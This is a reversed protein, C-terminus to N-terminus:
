PLEPLGTNSLAQFNIASWWARLAFSSVRRRITSSRRNERRSPSRYGPLLSARISRKWPNPSQSPPLIPGSAKAEFLEPNLWADLDTDFALISGTLGAITLFAAIALGVYRHLKVCIARAAVAFRARREGSITPVRSLPALMAM